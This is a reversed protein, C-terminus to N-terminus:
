PNIYIYSSSEWLNRDSSHIRNTCVLFLSEHQHQLYITGNNPPSTKEFAPKQLGYDLRWCFCNVCLFAMPYLDSSFPRLPCIHNCIVSLEKMGECLISSCLPSFGSFEDWGCSLIWYLQSSCAVQNDKFTLSNTISAVQM